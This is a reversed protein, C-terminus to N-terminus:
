VFYIQIDIKKLILRYIVDYAHLTMSVLANISCFTLIINKLPFYSRLELHTFINPHPYMSKNTNRVWRSHTYETLRDTEWKKINLTEQESYLLQSSAQHFYKDDISSIKCIVKQKQQKYDCALITQMVNCTDFFKKEWVTNILLTMILEM